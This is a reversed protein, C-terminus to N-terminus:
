IQGRILLYKEILEERNTISWEQSFLEILDILQLTTWKFTNNKIERFQEATGEGFYKNINKGLEYVHTSDFGNCSDCGTLVNRPDFRLIMKGREVFHCAHCEKTGPIVKKYCAHCHEPYIKKVTKAFVQDLTKVLVPLSMRKKARVKARKVKGEDKQTVRWCIACFTQKEIGKQRTKQIAKEKKCRTCACVKTKIM